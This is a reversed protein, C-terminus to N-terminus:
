ILHNLDQGAVHDYCTMVIIWPIMCRRMNMRNFWTNHSNSRGAIWVADVHCTVVRPVVVIDGERCKALDQKSSTSPLEAQSRGFMELIIGHSGLFGEM